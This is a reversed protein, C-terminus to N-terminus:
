LIRRIKERVEENIPESGWLTKGVNMGKEVQPRAAMGDFWRKVNLYDNLDQGQWEHYCIWPYISMDAISYKGAVFEYNSLQKELVRYLRAAEDTYRKIAYDIKEPTTKRFHHAQGLMPGLNGMQWMLWQTVLTRSRVDSSLFRGAKDALYILIAGSEFIAIPKGGDLPQLDIIAPIRNNPSIRLFEEIQQDGRAINIPFIQYELGLEELLITVKQGNPTPFSYLEIM